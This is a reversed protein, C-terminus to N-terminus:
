PATTRAYGPMDIGSLDVGLVNGAEDATKCFQIDAGAMSRALRVEQYLRAITEVMKDPCIFIAQTEPAIQDRGLNEASADQIRMIGDKNIQKLNVGEDIIVLIHYERRFEPSKGARLSLDAYEQTDVDDAFWWIMLKRDSDIKYKVTM